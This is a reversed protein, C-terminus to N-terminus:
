MNRSTGDAEQCYGADFDCIMKMFENTTLRYIADSTSVGIKLANDIYAMVGEINGMSIESMTPNDPSGQYVVLEGGSVFQEGGSVFQESAFVTGILFLIAVIGFIHKLKM